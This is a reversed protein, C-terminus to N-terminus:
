KELGLEGSVRSCRGLAAIAPLGKTFMRGTRTRATPTTPMMARRANGEAINLVVSLSASKLQDRTEADKIADLIPKVSKVAERAVVQVEFM